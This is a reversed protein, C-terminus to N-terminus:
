KQKGKKMTMTIPTCELIEGDVFAKIKLKTENNTMYYVSYTGDENNVVEAKNKKESSDEEEIVVEFDDSENERIESDNGLSV